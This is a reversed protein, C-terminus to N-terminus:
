PRTKPNTAPPGRSTPEGGAWPSKAHAGEGESSRNTNNAQPPDVVGGGCVGEDSVDESSVLPEDDLSSEFSVAGAEESAGAAAAAGAADAAGAAAGLSLAGAAANWGAGLTVPAISPLVNAGFTACIRAGMFFSPRM